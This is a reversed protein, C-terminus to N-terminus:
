FAPLIGANRLTEVLNGIADRAEIDVVQGGSRIAPSVVRQWGNSFLITQGSTKDLIRLGDTPSAFVWNEAVWGALNAGQGLWEATPNAGVLWCQGEQPASPPTDSESEIAPHLLMDVLAHAENVYFEKQAQGAFLFPIGFRPAASTFSIPDSM